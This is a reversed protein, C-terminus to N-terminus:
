FFKDKPYCTAPRWDRYYSRNCILYIPCTAATLKGPVRFLFVATYAALEFEPSTGLLFYAGTKSVKWQPADFTISIFPSENSCGKRTFKTFRIEKEYEKRYLQLWNHFGLLNGNDLEGVFVHEFSSFQGKGPHFISFDRPRDFAFWMEFLMAKFQEPDTPALGWTSLFDNTRQMVKTQMVAGLFDWTENMKEQTFYERATVNMEYNDLLRIFKTFTPQELRKSQVKQFLAKTEKNWVSFIDFLKRDNQKVRLESNLQLRNEDLTWLENLFSNLINSRKAADTNSIPSTFQYLYDVRRFLGANTVTLLSLLFWWSITTCLM